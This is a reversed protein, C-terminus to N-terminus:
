LVYLICVIIFVIVDSVVRWIYFMYLSVLVLLDLEIVELSRVEEWKLNWGVMNYGWMFGRYDCLVFRGGWLVKGVFVEGDYGM